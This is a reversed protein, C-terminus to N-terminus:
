NSLKAELAPGEGYVLDIKYYGVNTLKKTKLEKSLYCKFDAYSGQYSLVM